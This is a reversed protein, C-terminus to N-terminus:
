DATAGSAKILEGWKLTEAKVFAGFEKQTQGSVAFGQAAFKEKVEPNDLVKRLETNLKALVPEPTKAPAFIGNWAIAEFGKLGSEAMTPLDPAMPSRQLSTVALAKLKGAKVFPMATLMTDFMYDVQGGMTDTLAPGSGKYPVHLNKLGARANLMESALHTSAGVNSSAFNLPKKKSLAILDQVSNVPLSPNVVLVLPGGTLRTVPALDTLVDYSLKKYLTQRIMAPWELEGFPMAGDPSYRQAIREALKLPPLTYERGSALVDVQAKCANELWYMTNFADAISRGCTLLGHNRLILTYHPGLDRAIRERESMDAHPEEYDHFGVVNYFRMATQNLPLLGEKMASVAMGARPHTHLVCALEPRAEHIASHIIYGSKNVVYPTDPQLIVNADLDIKYLSSATIEEYLMGFPNILFHKGDSGPVKATIHNYVMDSMGYKAVLRYCAALNVRAEWEEPSVEARLSRPQHHVPANM